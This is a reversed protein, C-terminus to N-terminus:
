GSIVNDYWTEIEVFRIVSRRRADFSLLRDKFIPTEYCRNSTLIYFELIDLNLKTYLGIMDQMDVINLFQSQVISLLCFISSKMFVMWTSITATVILPLGQLNLTVVPREIHSQIHKNWFNSNPWIIIFYSQLFNNIYSYIM